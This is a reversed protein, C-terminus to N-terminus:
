VRDGDIEDTTFTTVKWDGNIAVTAELAALREEISVLRSSDNFQPSLYPREQYSIGFVTSM